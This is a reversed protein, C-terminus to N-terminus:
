DKDDPEGYASEIQKYCNDCYTISKYNIEVAILCWQKDDPDNTLEINESACNPCLIRNDATKYFIPYGGPFVYSQFKGNKLLYNQRNFM